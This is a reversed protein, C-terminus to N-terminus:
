ATGGFGPRPAAGALMAIAMAFVVTAADVHIEDAVLFCSLLGIGFQGLLASRALGLEDRKGQRSLAEALQFHASVVRPDTSQQFAPAM